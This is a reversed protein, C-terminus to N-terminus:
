EPSVSPLDQFNASDTLVTVADVVPAPSSL